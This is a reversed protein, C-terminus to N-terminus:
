ELCEKETKDPVNRKYLSLEAKEVLHETPVLLLLLLFPRRTAHCLPLRVRICTHILECEVRMFSRSYSERSETDLPHVLASAHRKCSSVWGKDGM